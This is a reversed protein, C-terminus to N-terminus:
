PSPTGADVPVPAPAPAGASGEFCYLHKDGRLYIADGAIAPSAYFTEGELDNVALVEVEVGRRLVVTTGSESLLYIRDAAAVPSASFKLGAGPLRAARGADCEVFRLAQPRAFLARLLANTMAHGARNGEYRALLPAGALALDGLADLMKHRVPEDSHRLGGPTLM